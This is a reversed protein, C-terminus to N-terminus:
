IGRIPSSVNPIWLSVCFWMLESSIVRSGIDRNFRMYIGGDIFTRRRSFWHLDENRLDVDLEM